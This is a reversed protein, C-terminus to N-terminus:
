LIQSHCSEHNLAATKQVLICVRFFLYKSTIDKLGSHHQKPNITATSLSFRLPRLSNINRKLLLQRKKKRLTWIIFIKPKRPWITEAVVVTKQWQLTFASLCFRFSHM